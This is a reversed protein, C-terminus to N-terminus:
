FKLRGDLARFKVEGDEFYAAETYGARVAALEARDFAFDLTDASHADSSFTVPVGAAHLCDLFEASPYVDDIAGRAIGGTNIEAVVGARAAAKATEKIEKKYWGDGEDFFHLEGNRKRIVDAHGLILFKQSSLMERQLSFYEQVARKGNGGFLAELGARVNETKDDVTMFANKHVIYHVSGILYDPSFEAFQNKFDCSFGQIYDAELGCYIKIRDSYKKSLARITEFYKQTDRPQMQWDAGHPHMSHASFGLVSFHKEIAALIMEEPTNKGDCFTTHTHYNTKM